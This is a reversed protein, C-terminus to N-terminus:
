SKMLPNCDKLLKKHYQRLRQVCEIWTEKDNRSFDDIKKQYTDQSVNFTVLIKDKVADYVAQEEEDMHVLIDRAEPLITPVLATVWKTRPVNHNRMHFEFGQLFHDVDEKSQMEQYPPYKPKQPEQPTSEAVASTHFSSGAGTTRELMETWRQEQRCLDTTEATSQEESMNTDENRLRPNDIPDSNQISQINQYHRKAERPPQKRRNSYGM